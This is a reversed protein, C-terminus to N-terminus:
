GGGRDQVYRESGELDGPQHSPATSSVPSRTPPPVSTKGCAHTPPNAIDMGPRRAGQNAMTLMRDTCHPPCTCGRCLGRPPRPSGSQHHPRGSSPDRETPVDGPQRQGGLGVRRGPQNLQVRWGGEMAALTLDDKHFCSPSPPKPATSQPGPPSGAVGSGAKRELRVLLNPKRARQQRPFSNRWKGRSGLAQPVWRFHCSRARQGWGSAM